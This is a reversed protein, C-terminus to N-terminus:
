WPCRNCHGSCRGHTYCRHLPAGDTSDCCPWETSGRSFDRHREVEDASSLRVVVAGGAVGVVVIAAAPGVALSAVAAAASVSVVVAFM